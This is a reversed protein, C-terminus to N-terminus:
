NVCYVYSLRKIVLTLRSGVKEFHFSAGWIGKGLGAVMKQKVFYLVTPM